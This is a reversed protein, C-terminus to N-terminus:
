HLSMACLMCRYDPSETKAAGPKRIAIQLESVVYFSNNEHQFMLKIFVATHYVYSIISSLWVPKYLHPRSEHKGRFRCISHTHTHTHTHTHSCTHMHYM